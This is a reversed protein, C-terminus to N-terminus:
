LVAVRCHIRHKEIANSLFKRKCDECTVLNVANPKNENNFQSSDVSNKKIISNKKAKSDLRERVKEEKSIRERCNKEHIQISHQGYRKGCFLCDVFVPASSLKKNTNEKVGNALTDDNEKDSLSNRILNRQYKPAEKQYKPAQKVVSDTEDLPPSKNDEVESAKEKGFGIVSYGKQKSRKQELKKEELSREWKKICQKEHIPLSRSGFLQNCLYCMQLGPSSILKKDKWPIVDPTVGKAEGNPINTSSKSLSKKPSSFLNQKVNMFNNQLATQNKLRSSTASAPRENLDISAKKVHLKSASSPRSGPSCATLDHLSKSKKKYEKNTGANQQLALTKECQRSHITISHQSYQKGCTRCEVYQPTQKRKDGGNVNQLSKTKNLTTDNNNVDHDRYKNVPKNYSSSINGISKSWTTGNQLSNSRPTNKILKKLPENQVKSYMNYVSKSKRLRPQETPSESRLDTRSVGRTIQLDTRSTGRSLSNLRSTSRAPTSISNILGSEWSKKCSREHISTMYSPVDMGCIYCQVSKKDAGENSSASNTSVVSSEHLSSRSSSLDDTNQRTYQTDNSQITDFCIKEHATLESHAFENGCIFCPATKSMNPLASVGL